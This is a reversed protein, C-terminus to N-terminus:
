PDSSNLLAAAFLARGKESDARALIRPAPPPVSAGDAESGLPPSAAEVRAAGGEQLAARTEFSSQALSYGAGGVSYLREAAEFRRRQMAVKARAIGQM